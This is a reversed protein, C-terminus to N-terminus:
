RRGAILAIRWWLDGRLEDASLRDIGANLGTWPSRRVRRASEPVDPEEGIRGVSFCRNERLTCGPGGALQLLQAIMAGCRAVFSRDPIQQSLRMRAARARLEEHRLLDLYLRVVDSPPHVM